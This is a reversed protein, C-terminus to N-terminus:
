RVAGKDDLSGQRGGDHSSIAVGYGELERKVVAGICIRGRDDHGTSLLRPAATQGQFIYDKFMSLIQTDSMPVDMPAIPAIGSIKMVCPRVSSYM